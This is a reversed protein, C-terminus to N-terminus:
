LMGSLLINSLDAEQTASMQGLDLLSSMSVAELCLIGKTSRPRGELIPVDVRQPAQGTSAPSRMLISAVNMGPANSGQVSAECPVEYCCFQKESHFNIRDILPLKTSLKDRGEQNQTSPKEPEPSPSSEFSDDSDEPSHRKNAPPSKPMKSSHGKMPPSKPPKSSRPTPKNQQASTGKAPLPPKGSSVAPKKDPDYPQLTGRM